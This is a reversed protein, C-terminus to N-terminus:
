FNLKDICISNSKQYYINVVSYQLGNTATMHKAILSNKIIVASGHM